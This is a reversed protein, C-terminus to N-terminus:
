VNLRQASAHTYAEASGPDGLAFVNKQEEFGTVIRHSIKRHGVDRWVGQFAAVM